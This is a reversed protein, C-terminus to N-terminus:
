NNIRSPLHFLADLETMSIWNREWHTDIGFLEIIRNIEHNGLIYDPHFLNDPPLDMWGAAIVTSIIHSYDDGLLDPPADHELILLSHLEYRGYWHLAIAFDRRTVPIRIGLALMWIEANRVEGMDILSVILHVFSRNDGSRIGSELVTIIESSISDTSRLNTSFHPIAPMTGSNSEGSVYNWFENSYSSVTITFLLFLIISRTVPTSGAVNLKPLQCEALQTIGAGMESRDKM